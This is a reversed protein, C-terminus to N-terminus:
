KLFRAVEREGEIQVTRFKRVTAQKELEGSEYINSLHESITSKAVGFVDAMKQQTLWITEDQIYAEIKINGSPATYLIFNKNSPILDSM